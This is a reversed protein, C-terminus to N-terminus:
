NQTKEELKMIEVGEEKQVQVKGQEDVVLINEIDLNGFRRGALTRRDVKGDKRLRVMLKKGENKGDGTEEEGLYEEDGQTSEEIIKLDKQKNEKQSQVKGNKTKIKESGKKDEAEKKEDQIPEDKGKFSGSSVVIPNLDLKEEDKIKEKKQQNILKGNQKKDKSPKTEKKDYDENEVQNEEEDEDEDEFDLLPNQKRIKENKYKKQKSIIFDDEESKREQLKEDAEYIKNRLKEAKENYKNKQKESLESWMHGLEILTLKDPKAEERKASSFLLYGSVGYLRRRTSRFYEEPNQKIRRYEPNRRKSTRM